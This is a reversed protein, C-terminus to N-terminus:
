KIKTKFYLFKFQIVPRNGKKHDFPISHLKFFTM